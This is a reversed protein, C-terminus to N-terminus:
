TTINDTDSTSTTPNFLRSSTIVDCSRSTDWMQGVDLQDTPGGLRLGHYSACCLGLWSFPLTRLAGLCWSDYSISESLSLLMVNQPNCYYPTTPSGFQLSHGRNAAGRLHHIIPPNNIISPDCRSDLPARGAKCSLDDGVDVMM